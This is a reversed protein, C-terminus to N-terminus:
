RGPSCLFSGGTSGPVGVWGLRKPVLLGLGSQLQWGSNRAVIFLGWVDKNINGNLLSELGPVM